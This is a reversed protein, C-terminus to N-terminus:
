QRPGADPAPLVKSGIYGTLPITIHQQSSSYIDLTTTYTSRTAPPIGPRSPWFEVVLTKSEGPRLFLDFPGSGVSVGPPPHVIFYYGALSTTRASLPASGANRLVLNQTAKSTVSIASLTLRDPAVALMGGRLPTLVFGRMQGNHLGYGAIQGDDRIRTAALLRWGSTPDILTNLDISQNGRFLAATGTPPIQNLAYFGVADGYQNIDFVATPTDRGNVERVDYVQARASSAGPGTSLLMTSANFMCIARVVLRCITKM